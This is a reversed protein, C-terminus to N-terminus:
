VVSKRDIGIRHFHVSNEEYFFEIEMGFVPQDSGNRICASVGAFAYSQVDPDDGLSGVTAVPWASVQRAQTSVRDELEHNRRDSDNDLLRKAFCSAIVAAIFAAFSFLANLGSTFDGWQIQTLEIHM